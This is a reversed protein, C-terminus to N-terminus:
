AHANRDRPQTQYCAPCSRQKEEQIRMMERLDNVCLHPFVTGYKAKCEAKVAEYQQILPSM